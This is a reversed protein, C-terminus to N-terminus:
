CRAFARVARRGATAAGSAFAWAPPGDRHPLVLSAAAVPDHRALSRVLGGFWGIADRRIWAREDRTLSRDTLIASTFRWLLASAARHHDASSPEHWGGGRLVRVVAPDPARGLLRSLASAAIADASGTADAANAASSSGEHLRYRVVVDPVNAIHTVEIARIWLDYDEAPEADTRYGGLDQLVDRRAVVTPHNVCNHVHLMWRVHGPSTPVNTPAGLPVGQVDVPQLNGGVIGISRSRELLGLELELRDPMALDDADMRAVYRGRALGLGANLAAAVGRHTGLRLVRLRADSAGALLEPTQDGSADDVVVIEFNRYTQAFISELSAPLFAAANRAPMLVTVRPDDGM